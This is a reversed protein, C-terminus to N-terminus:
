GWFTIVLIGLLMIGTAIIKRLMNGERLFKGSLLVTWFVQLRKVSSAYAAFAYALAQVVLFFGISQILIIVVLSRWQSLTSFIVDKSKRLSWGSMILSVMGIVFLVTAAFFLGSSMLVAKKDFPFSLSFSLAGSLGFLVGKRKIVEFLSIRDFDAKSYMLIWFGIVTVLIGAIGSLTPEESLVMFGTVIVLPPILLRLPAVLSAEEYRFAKYWAWQGYLNLASWFGPQITPLGTLLLAFLLIISSGTLNIGLILRENLTGDKLLRRLLIDYIGIFITGPVMIAFFLFPISM